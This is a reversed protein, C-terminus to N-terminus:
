NGSTFTFPYNVTVIGGGKPEPFRWRRVRLTICNEVNANNMTTSGISSRAVQGSPDIVFSVVIRGEITPNRQLESEYCSVIERRHQRIVREILERDLQGQIESRGPQVAVAREQRDRIGVGSRGAGAAGRNIASPGIGFGGGGALASGTAAGGGYAGLGGMGYSAGINVGDAGGIAVVDTYSGAAEGFVSGGTFSQLAALAGTQLAQERADARALQPDSNTGSDSGISSRNDTQEAREDGAQGAEGAVIAGDDTEKEELWDPTEPEPPMEDAIMVQVFRQDLLFNDNANMSYDPPMWMGIIVVGFHILFAIAMSVLVAKPISFAVPFKTVPVSTRHIFLTQHGFVLRMRVDKTFKIAYADGDKTVIGAAIAERLTYRDADVYLEGEMEETFRLRADPSQPNAILVFQDKKLSAHEIAYTADVAPGITIQAIEERSDKFMGRLFQAAASSATKTGSRYFGKGDQKFIDDEVVYDKWLQAIEITGDSKAPRALFRRAYEVSKPAVPVVAAAGRAAKKGAQPVTFVIETNGVRIRDGAKLVQKNVRQGNVFTGRGSGLDIIAPSGDAADIMAHVRSVEPDNIYLQSREHSGIKIAASGDLQRSDLKQGDRYIDFQFLQQSM